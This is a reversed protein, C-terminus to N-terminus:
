LRLCMFPAASLYLTSPLLGLASEQKIRYLRQWDLVDSLMIAFAPGGALEATVHCSMYQCKWATSTSLLIRRGGCGFKVKRATEMLFRSTWQLLAKKTRVYQTHHFVGLYGSLMQIPRTSRCGQDLRVFLRREACAALKHVCFM